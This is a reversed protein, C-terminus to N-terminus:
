GVRDVACDTSTLDSPVVRVNLHRNQGQVVIRKPEGVRASNTVLRLRVLFSSDDLLVEFGLHPKHISAACTQLSAYRGRLYHIQGACPVEDEQGLGVFHHALRM